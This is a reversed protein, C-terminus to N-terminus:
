LDLMAGDRVSFPENSPAAYSRTGAAAPVPGTSIASDPHVIMLPAPYSAINESFGPIRNSSGSQMYNPTIVSYHARQTYIMGLTVNGVGINNVGATAEVSSAFTGQAQFVSFSQGKLVQKFSTQNATPTIVSFPTVGPNFDENKIIRPKTTKYGFKIARGPAIERRKVKIVKFMRVFRPNQFPTAGYVTSTIPGVSVADPSGSAATADSFGNIIVANVSSTTEAVAPTTAYTVICDHRARCRYETVIVTGTGVNTMRCNTSFDRLMIQQTPNPSTQALTTILTSMLNNPTLQLNVMMNNAGGFGTATRVSGLQAQGLQSQCTGWIKQLARSNTTGTIIASDVYTDVFSHSPLSKILHNLAMSKSSTKSRAFQKRKFNKKKYAGVVSRKFRKFVRRKSVFSGRPKYLPKRKKSAYSAQRRKYPPM